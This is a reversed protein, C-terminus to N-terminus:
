WSPVLSSKPAPAPASAGPQYFSGGARGLGSFLTGLASTYGAQQAAKGQMTDISAQTDASQQQAQGQWLTLQKALEGQTAQDSMVELPSGSNPDVGAAGYAATIAGARLLADRGKQQGQEIAINRQQKGQIQEQQANADYAAKQANGAAVQGGASLVTGAVQAAVMVFPLAAAM